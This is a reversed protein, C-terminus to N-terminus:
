RNRKPRDTATILQEIREIRELLLANDAKLASTEAQLDANAEQLEATRAELAKLAVLMVGDTDLTTITTDSGLGFLAHFDQAVPGLYRRGSEDDRYRWTTVPLLALRRLIDRQDVTQFDQKRNRDSVSAWSGGNAALSVGTSMAANSYFTVGGAARAVFQNDGTPRVLHTDDTPRVVDSTSLDGWVFTGRRAVGASDTTSAYYGMATSAYGSATTRSGLATSLDGSATTLRGLATSVSGSATTNQGMSISINGSAKTGQGMATSAYGEARTYEGTATSTRGTAQTFYGMATAYHDGTASTGLGMATSAIGYAVTDIGLATSGFGVLPDDWQTGAVRGARFAAKGPYWMLRTGAGSRPIAGSSLVGASVFGDSSNQDLKGSLTLAGAAFGGAADRAVITNGVNADTATTASNAIKGAASITTLKADTVALNALQQTDVGGPAIGLTVSGTGGGTLGTGAGLSTVVGEVFYGNIDVILHTANPSFFTVDGGDGAPVITGVSLTLGAEAWASTAALPQEHGAPWGVVYGAGSTQTVSVSLSYASANAPIGACPGNAMAFTRSGSLIPGGHPGDAERTDLIRCPVMTVFHTAASPVAANESVQLGSSAKREPRM